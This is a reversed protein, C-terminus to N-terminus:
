GPGLRRRCGRGSGLTSRGVSSGVGFRTRASMSCSGSVATPRWRSEEPKAGRRDEYMRVAWDRSERDYKRPAPM